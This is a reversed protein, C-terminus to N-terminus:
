LSKIVEETVRAEGLRAAENIAHTLLNNVTLPYAHSVKREDVLRRSLVDLAKPEIVKAMDMSKRRFKHEVYDVLSGNLGTIRAVQIRRIVERADYNISEDLMDGLEPQGILIIGLTRKFGYTIEHFRKLAKLSEIRLDHAEEIIMSASVGERARGRLIEGVQRSKREVTGKPKKRSLDFIVADCLSSVTVRGKDISAVEIMAHEKDKQLEEEMVQRMVSKGSGVEGVVALLGGNRAAELMSAKIYRHDESLFIDEGGAIEDKFPNAFIRFHKRAKDTLMVVEAKPLSDIFRQRNERRADAIRQGTGKVKAPKGGKDVEGWIDGIAHGRDKLYAMVCPVRRLYKEVADRFERDKPFFGDDANCVRSISTRGYGDPKRKTRIGKGLDTQKIGCEELVTRLLRAQTRGNL